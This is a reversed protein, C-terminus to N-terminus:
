IVQAFRRHDLIACRCTAATVYGSIGASGYRGLARARTARLVAIADPAAAVVSGDAAM